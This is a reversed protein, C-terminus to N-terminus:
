PINPISPILTAGPGRPPVRLVSFEPGTALDLATAASHLGRAGSFFPSGIQFELIEAPQLAAPVDHAAPLIRSM